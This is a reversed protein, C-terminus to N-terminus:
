SEGFGFQVGLRRLARGFRRGEETPNKPPPPPPAPAPIFKPAVSLGRLLDADDREHLVGGDLLDRVVQPFRGDLAYPDDAGFEPLLVSCPGALLDHVRLEDMYERYESMAQAFAIYAEAFPRMRRRFEPAYREALERAVEREVHLREKQALELGRRANRLDGCIREFVSDTSLQRVDRLSAGEVLRRPIDKAAAHAETAHQQHESLERELRTVEGALRNATATAAQMRPHDAIRPLSSAPTDTTAALTTPATATM